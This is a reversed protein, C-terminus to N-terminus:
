VLIKSAMERSIAVRTDKIHVILNGCIESIVRVQAGPVFGLSELFQRTEQKGGVRKISNEKGAGVMTLPMM